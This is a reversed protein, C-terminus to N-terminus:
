QYIYRVEVGRISLLNRKDMKMEDKGDLLIEGGHNSAPTCPILRAISQATVSKGSGSEGVLCLTEGERISLSVGNVVQVADSGSGFELKLNNIELLAM